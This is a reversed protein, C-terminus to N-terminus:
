LNNAICHRANQKPKSAMVFGNLFERRSSARVGDLKLACVFGLHTFSRTVHRMGLVGQSWVPITGLRRTACFGRCAWYLIPSRIKGQLRPAGACQVAHQHYEQMLAPVLFLLAGVGPALLWRAFVPVLHYQPHLSSPLNLPLIRPASIIGPPKPLVIDDNLKYTATVSSCFKM